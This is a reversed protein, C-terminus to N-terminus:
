ASSTLPAILWVSDRVIRVDNVVNRADTTRKRNPPSTRWSKAKARTTPTTVPVYEDMAAAASTISQSAQVLARARAVPFIGTLAQAESPLFDYGFRANPPLM